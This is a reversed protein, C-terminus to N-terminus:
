SRSLVKCPTKAAALSTVSRFRKSFAKCSVLTSSSLAFNVASFAFLALDSKRDPILWSNREGNFAIKPKACSISDAEGSGVLECFSLM